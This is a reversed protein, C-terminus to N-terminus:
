VSFTCYFPLLINLQGIATSRSWYMFLLYFSFEDSWLFHRMCKQFVLLYVSLNSSLQCHIVYYVKFIIAELIHFLFFYLSLSKVSTCFQTYSFFLVCTCTSNSELLWIIVNKNILIGSGCLYLRAVCVSFFPFFFLFFPPLLFSSALSFLCPILSLQFSRSIPAAKNRLSGKFGTELIKEWWNSKQIAHVIYIYIYIYWSM